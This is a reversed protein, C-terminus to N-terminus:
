RFIGFIIKPPEYDPTYNKAIPSYHKELWIPDLEPSATRDVRSYVTPLSMVETPPTFVPDCFFIHTAEPGFGINQYSQSFSKYVSLRSAM